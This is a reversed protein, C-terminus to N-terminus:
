AFSRALSSASLCTISHSGGRGGVVVVVIAAATATEGNALFVSLREIDWGDAAAHRSM